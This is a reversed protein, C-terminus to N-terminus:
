QIVIGSAKSTQGGIAVTIPQNGTAMDAPIVVNLQYLGVVSPTLGYFAPTIQRGGITVVPVATTWSLPDGLAPEGSAPQNTVPGLGNAYLAVVSGRKAPNGANIVQATNGDRAAVVGAGTEFFGPAYTAIPVTVLNGPNFGITVKVQASAQGALEWPVQVNIQGGSVYYMHGPASIGAADFSVNVSDIALPLRAPNTNQDPFDSLTLGSKDFVAIYSGPAFGATGYTAADQVDTIKPALRATDSFNHSLVGATAKVSYSGPTAGLVPQAFALGNSDTKSDKQPLTMGTSPAWTVAYSAVPVGYQDILMFAMVGDPIVQGVTGDNGDGALPILDAAVGDGIVYLYPARLSVGTGQIVLAGSYVGPISAPGAYTVQVTGSAGPALALSQKDISLGTTSLTAASLSLSLAQAASGTNTITLPITVPLTQQAVFGFSVSAPVVTVTANVAANTDLLGAGTSRIDVANSSDDVTVTQYATNNVIASKIQASTFNPHQQKVLAAAGSTIPTSFSTGNAIGYGNSSYLDGLPDYKQAAMYINTGPALVDPKLGGNITPGLSSFYAMQNPTAAQEVGAPNLSVLHGGHSDVFTKLALGDANSIVAAPITSGGLDSPSFLPEPKYDYFIVGVAGAAQVNALKTAFTCPGSQPGREVLAIAGALSGAPPGCAYGDDGFQSVDALPKTVTETPLFGGFLANITQLNSPVDTGPLMINYIFAHSNTTAGAAIVSPANGPSSITNYTTSGKGTQNQNGAAVVVVMHQALGEFVSAVLDCAQGPSKGCTAGTDLPGTFAPGGSSFSLVDMGDSFADDAANIIAQDTTSDNVQPSGYIKYNGLFAKPAMGNFTVAGTNSVGAADSAVATGHGSHDRPTLDDPRSDATSTGAAVFIVYSRAVIVKNNTFDSCRFAAGSCVPFGTPPTLSSDQFAPHNQDIGSDLIAIKMGAGAVQIGGLSNWAAPANVLQVAANLSRKYRRAPVVGIVGPLSRLEAVRDPTAAVFVANLVHSVSGLIPIKKDQLQARVAGQKALIQQHYTRAEASMAQGRGAFQRTVPPDELILTYRNPATQAFAASVALTALVAVRGLRPKLDHNSFSNRM